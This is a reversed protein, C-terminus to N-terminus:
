VRGSGTRLFRNEPDNLKRKVANWHNKNFVDIGDEVKWKEIVVMPLSAVHWWSEKIGQQSYDTNSLVKNAELFPEVDQRSEITTADTVPDYHHWTEVGTLPDIDLLDKM